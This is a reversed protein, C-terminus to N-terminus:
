QALLSIIGGLKLANIGFGPVMMGHRVARGMWLPVGKMHMYLDSAPSWFDTAVHIVSFGASCVLREFSKPGYYQLHHPPDIVPSRTGVLRVQLSRTNPVSVVLRGSTALLRKLDVLVAKPDIVHELVNAAHVIDFTGEHKALVDSFDGTAIDLNWRARGEAAASVSRDFGMVDRYGKKVLTALLAGQSCGFDFIRTEASAGARALEALRDAHFAFYREDRDGLYEAMPGALGSGLFSEATESYLAALESETPMTEVYGHTCAVCEVIRYGRVQYLQQRATAGCVPCDTERSRPGEVMGRLM